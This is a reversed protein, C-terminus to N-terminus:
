EARPLDDPISVTAGVGMGKREFWGGAVELTYLYPSAPTLISEDLPKGHRIELVQGNADLYAIDLPIYTGKMWFGGGAPGPFVFLMGADDALSQRAMLGQERQRPTTALEVTLQESRGNGEVTISRTDPGAAKPGDDDGCAAAVSVVVVCLLLGALLRLALHSIPMHAADPPEVLSVLTPVYPVGALILGEPRSILLEGWRQWLPRASLTKPTCCRGSAGGGNIEGVIKAHNRLGCNMSGIATTAPIITIAKPTCGPPAFPSASPREREVLPVCTAALGEGLTEAVAVFVAELVAAAVDVTAPACVVLGAPAFGLALAVAVAFLVSPLGAPM